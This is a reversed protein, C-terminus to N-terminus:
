ASKPIWDFNIKALSFVFPWWCNVCEAFESPPLTTDNSRDPWLDTPIWGVDKHKIFLERCLRNNTSSTDISEHCHRISILLTFGFFVFLSGIEDWEVIWLSGISDQESFWILHSVDEAVNLNTTANTKLLTDISKHCHRISILSTFGWNIWEHCHWFSLTSRLNSKGHKISWEQCHWDSKSM